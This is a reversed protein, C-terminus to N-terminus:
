VHSAEKLSSRAAVRRGGRSLARCICVAHPIACRLHYACATLRVRASKPGTVRTTPLTEEANFLLEM